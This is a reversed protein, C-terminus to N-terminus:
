ALLDPTLTATQKSVSARDCNGSERKREVERERTSDQKKLVAVDGEERSREERAAMAREPMKRASTM